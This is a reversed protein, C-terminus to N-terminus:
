NFDVLSNLIETLDAEFRRKGIQKVTVKIKQSKGYDINHLKEKYLLILGEIFKEEYLADTDYLFEGDEARQNFEKVYNEIDKDSLKSFKVPKFKVTVTYGDKTKKASKVKFKSYSYVDKSFDKLLEISKDSLNEVGFYAAYAEAQFRLDEDISEKIELPSANTLKEYEKSNDYCVSDLASKVYKKAPFKFLSFIWVALCLLVVIAAMAIIYILKVRKINKKSRM